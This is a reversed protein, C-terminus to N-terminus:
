FFTIAGRRGCRALAFILRSRGLLPLSFAFVPLSRDVVGAVERPEGHDPDRPLRERGEPCKQAHLVTLQLPGPVFLRADEQNQRRSKSTPSLCSAMLSDSFRTSHCLAARLTPPEWETRVGDDVVVSASRLHGYDTGCLETEPDTGQTAPYGGTTMELWEETAALGSRQQVPRETHRLVHLLGRGPAKLFVQPHCPLSSFHVEPTVRPCWPYSGTPATSFVRHSPSILGRSRTLAARQQGDAPRPPLLPPTM